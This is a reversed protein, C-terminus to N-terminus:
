PIFSHEHKTWCIEQTLKKVAQPDKSKELIRSIPIKRIPCVFDGAIEALPILVFNREAYHPHPISLGDAHIIRDEYFIIDIDITRPGWRELRRRGLHTEIDLLVDMLDHPSCHTELELALNFFDNQSIRGVPATQYMSSITRIQAKENLRTVAQQLYGFRDGVNSGLSLYARHKKQSLM